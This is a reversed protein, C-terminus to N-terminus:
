ETFTLPAHPVGTVDTEAVNVTFGATAIVVWGTLWVIHVPPVDVNLTVAVLAVPYWHYLPVAIM